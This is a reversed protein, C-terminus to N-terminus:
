IIKLSFLALCTALRCYLAGSALKRCNIIRVLKERTLLYFLVIRCRAAGIVKAPVLNYKTMDNCYM